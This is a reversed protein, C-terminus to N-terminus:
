SLFTGVIDTMLILLVLAVGWRLYQFDREHKAATVRTEERLERVEGRLENVEVRLGNFESKFDVRLEAFQSDNEKRTSFEAARRHFEDNGVFQSDAKEAARAVSEDTQKQSERLMRAVQEDFAEAIERAPSEAMGSERLRDFLNLAVASM